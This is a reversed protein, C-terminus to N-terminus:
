SLICHHLFPLEDMFTLHGGKGALAIIVCILLNTDSLGGLSKKHSLQDVQARIFYIMKFLYGNLTAIELM